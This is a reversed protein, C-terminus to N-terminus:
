VQQSCVINYCKHISRYNHAFFDGVFHSSTYTGEPFGVQSCVAGAIGEQSSNCVTGWRGDM